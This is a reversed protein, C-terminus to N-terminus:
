DYNTPHKKTLKLIINDNTIKFTIIWIYMFKIINIDINKRRIYPAYSSITYHREM